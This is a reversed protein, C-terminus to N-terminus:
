IRFWWVSWLVVAIGKVRIWLETELIDIVNLVDGQKYGHEYGIDVTKKM